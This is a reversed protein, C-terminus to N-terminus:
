RAHRFSFTKKPVRLTNDVREDPSSRSPAVHVCSTAKIVDLFSTAKLKFRIERDRVYLFLM